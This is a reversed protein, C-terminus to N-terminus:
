TDRGPRQSTQCPSVPSLWDGRSGHPRMNALLNSAATPGCYGYYGGPGESDPQEWSYTRERAHGPRPEVRHPRQRETCETFGRQCEDMCANYLPSLTGWTQGYHAYCGQECAIRRRMCLSSKEAVGSVLSHPGELSEPSELDACGGMLVALLLFCRM